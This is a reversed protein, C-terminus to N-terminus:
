LPIKVRVKKTTAVWRGLQRVTVGWKTSELQLRRESKEKNGKKITKDEQGDKLLYAGRKRAQTEQKISGMKGM